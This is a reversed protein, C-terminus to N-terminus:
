ELVPILGAVVAQDISLRLQDCQTVRGTDAGAARHAALEPCGGTDGLWQITTQALSSKRVLVRTGCSSCSVPSMSPADGAGLRSAM